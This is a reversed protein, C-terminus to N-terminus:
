GGVMQMRDRNALNRTIQADVAARVAPMTHVLGLFEAKPLTLFLCGTLTRISANRPSDSLLAMEGFHDGDQMTDIRRAKGGEDRVLVEVQGRAILYLKDGLEGELIVSHGAHIYEPVFRSALTALTALDLAGFIGVHRLYDAHVAGSRGDARVDFGSQKQWLQAYIGHQDLLKSHEGAEVLRGGQLVFICDADVVSSLRHTVSIVTRNRALRQLTANIAAETGPDLASTAEDLILIAPNRIIARAIAIRQRQGGSLWGGGEGVPTEYRQPLNMILEHIEAQKAAEEVEVDSADLKAMRINERITTNFLYTEQFVVGMQQQLSLRRVHRLDVGDFKITGTTAEHARMLLSLLTSKGSGSPGVFAVSNGAPVVLDIASLNYTEGTYSFSVHEFEIARQLRPIAIADARDVTDPREQLLEEIRQIGGTTAIFDPLINRTLDDASTNILESLALFAILSGITMMGRTVLLAGVVILTIRIAMLSGKASLSVRARLFSAVEGVGQLARIQAEFRTLMQDELGFARIVAQARVNEQLQNALAAEGGKLQYSATTAPPILKGFLYTMLGLLLLALCALRWDLYFIVPFNYLIELLDLLADRLKSGAAREVESLDSSFRALIGGIPTRSYFRQSLHQLHNFMRVRLQNLIKVSDQAILWEAQLRASYAIVFGIGLTALLVGLNEVQGSAQLNDILTKGTLAVYTKFLLYITMLCLILLARFWHHRWLQLIYRVGGLLTVPSVVPAHNRLQRLDDQRILPRRTM